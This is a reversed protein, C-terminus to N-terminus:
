ENIITSIDVTVDPFAVPSISGSTYDQRLAYQGSMPERFVILTFAGSGLIRTLYKDSETSAYAHPKGEPAM